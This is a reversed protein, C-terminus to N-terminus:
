TGIDLNHIRFRYPMSVWGIFNSCPVVSVSYLFPDAFTINLFIAVSLNGSWRHLEIFCYKNFIFVFKFSIWFNLLKFKLFFNKFISTFSFTLNTISSTSNNVWFEFQLPKLLLLFEISLVRTIPVLYPFNCPTIRGISWCLYKFGTSAYRPTGYAVGGVPEFLYTKNWETNWKNIWSAQDWKLWPQKWIRNEPFCREYFMWFIMIFFTLAIKM